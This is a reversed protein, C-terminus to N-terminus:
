AHNVFATGGRSGTKRSSISTPMAPNRTTASAIGSANPSEPMAKPM